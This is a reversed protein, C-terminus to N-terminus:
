HYWPKDIQVIWPYAQVLRACIILKHMITFLKDHWVLYSRKRSLRITSHQSRTHSTGPEIGLGPGRWVLSTISITGTTWKNLVSCQFHFYQSKRLFWSNLYSFLTNRLRLDNAMTTPLFFGIVMCFQCFDFALFVLFFCPLSM